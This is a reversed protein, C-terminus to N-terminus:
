CWAYCICITPFCSDICGIVSIIFLLQDQIKFFSIQLNVYNKVYTNNSLLLQVCQVVLLYNLANLLCLFHLHLRIYDWSSLNNVSWCIEVTPQM